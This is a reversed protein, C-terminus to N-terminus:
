SGSQTTFRLRPSLCRREPTASTSGAFVRFFEGPYGGALPRQHLTAAILESFTLPLVPPPRNGGFPLAKYGPPPPRFRVPTWPKGPRQMVVRGGRRSPRRRSGVM